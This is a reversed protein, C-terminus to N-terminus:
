REGFLSAKLKRDSVYWQGKLKTAPIEKNRCMKQVVALPKDLIEAVQRDTLIKDEKPLARVIEHALMTIDASNAM